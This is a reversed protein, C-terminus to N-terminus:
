STGSEAPTTRRARRMAWNPVGLRLDTVLVVSGLILTLGAVMGLTVSEGLLLAGWLTGFAPFLYAVSVTEM